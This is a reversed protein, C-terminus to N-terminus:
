THLIHLLCKRGLLALEVAAELWGLVASCVMSGSPWISGKESTDLAKGWVPTLGPAALCDQPRLISSFPTLDLWLRVGVLVDGNVLGRKLEPHQSHQKNGTKPGGQWKACVFRKGSNFRVVYISLMKVFLANRRREICYCPSNEVGWRSICGTTRWGNAVRSRIDSNHGWSVARWFTLYWVFGQAFQNTDPIPDPIPKYRHIQFVSGKMDLYGWM